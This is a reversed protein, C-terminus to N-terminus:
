KYNALNVVNDESTVEQRDIKIPIKLATINHSNEQKRTTTIGLIQGLKTKTVSDLFFIQKKTKAEFCYDINYGDDKIILEIFNKKKKIQYTLYKSQMLRDVVISFTDFLYLCLLLEDSKIFYDHSSVEINIENETTYDKFMSLVKSVLNQLNIQKTEIQQPINSYLDQLKQINNKLLLETDNTNRNSNILILEENAQIETLSDKLREYLEAMFTYKLKTTSKYADILKNFFENQKELSSTAKKLCTIENRLKRIYDEFYLYITTYIGGFVLLCMLAILPVSTYGFWYRQWYRDFSMYKIQSPFLIDSINKRLNNFLANSLLVLDFNDHIHSSVLDAQNFKQQFISIPTIGIVMYSSDKKPNLVVGINSKDLPIINIVNSNISIREDYRFAKIEGNEGFYLSGHKIVIDEFINDQSRIQLLEKTKQIANKTDLELSSSEPKFFELGFSLIDYSKILFTNFIAKQSLNNIRIEKKESLYFCVGSIMIYIILCVFIIQSVVYLAKKQITNLNIVEVFKM